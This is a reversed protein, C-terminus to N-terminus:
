VVLQIQPKVQQPVFAKAVLEYVYVNQGAHTGARVKAEKFAQEKCAFETCLHSDRSVIFHKSMKFYELYSAFNCGVCYKNFYQAPFM